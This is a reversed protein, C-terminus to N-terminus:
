FPLAVSAWIRNKRLTGDGDSGTATPRPNDGNRRSWTVNATMGAPGRWTVGLGHGRLRATAAEGPLVSLSVTRGWDLFASLAWQPAPTWRWEVSALQGREGGLESAPYARVSGAGGIFLKESSDLVQTAHQGSFSFYLSHASWLAQQRFIAYNLKHYNSEISALQPHAKM